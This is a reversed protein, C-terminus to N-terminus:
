LREAVFRLRRPALFDSARMPEEIPDSLWYHPAGHLVCTRVNFNAQKLALLSELSQSRHDVVDDETGWALYVATKNNAIIAHSLPSAEFYRRRDQMPSCGLFSEVLNDGPNGLQSDRWQAVLDYIGYVGILLKVSSSQAAHADQPYGGALGPSDGALAVLAALQAGASNGWLAIRGPDLRLEKASGRMFQVAARVDQVAVGDHTAYTIGRRLETKSTDTDPVSGGVEHLNGPAPIECGIVVVHPFNMWDRALPFGMAASPLTLESATSPTRISIISRPRPRGSRNRWGPMPRDGSAGTSSRRASRARRIAGIWGPNPPECCGAPKVPM